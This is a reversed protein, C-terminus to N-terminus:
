LEIKMGGENEADWEKHSFRREKFEFGGDVKIKYLNTGITGREKKRVWNPYEVFLGWASKVTLNERGMKELKDCLPKRRVDDEPEKKGRDWNTV